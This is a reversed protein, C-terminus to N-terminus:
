KYWQWFVTRTRAFTSLADTRKCRKNTGFLTFVKECLALQQDLCFQIPCSFFFTHLKRSTASPANLLYYVHMWLKAIAFPAAATPSRLLCYPMITDLWAYTNKRINLNFSSTLGIAAFATVWNLVCRLQFCFSAVSQNVRVSQSNIQSLHFTLWKSRTPPFDLAVKQNWGSM